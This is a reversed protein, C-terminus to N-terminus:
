GESFRAVSYVNVGRATPALPGIGPTPPRLRHALVEVGRHVQGPQLRDEGGVRLRREVRLGDAVRLRHVPRHREVGDLVLRQVQQHAPHRGPRQEFPQRRQEQLVGRQLALAAVRGPFVGRGPAQKIKVPSPFFM